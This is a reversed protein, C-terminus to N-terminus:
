AAGGSTADLVRRSSRSSRRFNNLHDRQSEVVSKKEESAKYALVNSNSNAHRLLPPRGSSTSSTGSSASSLPPSAVPSLAAGSHGGRLADIDVSQNDDSSYSSENPSAAPTTMAPKASSSGAVSSKFRMMVSGRRKLANAVSVGRSRESAAASPTLPAGPSALKGAAAGPHANHSAASPNTTGLLASSMRRFRTSSMSSESAIQEGLRDVGTRQSSLTRRMAHNQARVHKLENDLATLETTLEHAMQIGAVAARERSTNLTMIERHLRTNRLVLAHIEDRFRDNEAQLETLTAPAAADTTTSTTAM